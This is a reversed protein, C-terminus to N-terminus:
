PPSQPFNDRYTDPWSRIHQTFPEVLAQGNRIVQKNTLHIRDGPLGIVRKVLRQGPDLPAPFVIIDGRQVDRYPLLAKGILGPDGYAMRDVLLHDGILLSGEMSGTPIVYAQVLTSSSFLVLLLSISWEAVAGRPTPRRGLTVINRLHARLSM